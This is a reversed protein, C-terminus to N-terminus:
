PKVYLCVSWKSTTPYKSESKAPHTSLLFDVKHYIKKEQQLAIDQFLLLCVITVVDVISASNM